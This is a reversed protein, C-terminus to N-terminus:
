NNDLHHICQEAKSILKELVEIMAKPSIYPDIDMERILDEFKSLYEEKM